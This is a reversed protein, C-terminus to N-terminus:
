TQRRNVANPLTLLYTNELHMVYLSLSLSLIISFNKFVIHMKCPRGVLRLLADSSYISLCFNLFKDLKQLMAM